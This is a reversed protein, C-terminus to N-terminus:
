SDPRNESNEDEGAKITLNNKALSLSVVSKLAKLCAGNLSGVKFTSNVAVLQGEWNITSEAVTGTLDINSLNTKSSCLQFPLDFFHLSDHLDISLKENPVYAWGLPARNLTQSNSVDIAVLKTMLSYENVADPLGAYNDNICQFSTVQDFACDTDSFFGNTFYYQETACEAITGLRKFCKAHANSASMLTYSALIIGILVSSALGCKGIMLVVPHHTVKDVTDHVVDVVFNSRRVRENTNSKDNNDNKSNEDEMHEALELADQVDLATMLAPLLLALHVSAQDTFKMNQQTLTDYRLLVGVGVYLKDFLVEVVMVAAVGVYKSESKFCRPGFVIVLPLVILNAAIIVASVAVDNVHSKKAGTTLSNIQIAVEITEMLMLKLPFFDGAFLFLCVFVFLFLCFCVFVFLFLCVFVFFKTM